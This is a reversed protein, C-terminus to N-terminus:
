KFKELFCFPFSCQRVLKIFGTNGEDGFWIFIGRFLLIYALRRLSCRHLFGWIFYHCVSDLLVDSLDKVMTLNAEDWPHLPPEVYVFRYIYCLVNISAFVILIHLFLRQHSEVGSWSLLELFVLFLLFTGLMTFVVYSLGITLMMSLPSFSFCNGRFDPILCPHGSDGSRNL